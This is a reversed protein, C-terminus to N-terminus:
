EQLIAKSSLQKKTIKMLSDFEAKEKEPLSASLQELQNFIPMQLKKLEIQAYPAWQKFVEELTAGPNNKAYDKLMTFIQAPVKHLSKEAPNLATIVNKLPFSFLKYKLIREFFKPNIVPKGTWADVMGYKMLERLPEANKAAAQFSVTDYQLNAPSYTACYQTKHIKSNNFIRNSIVPLVEM